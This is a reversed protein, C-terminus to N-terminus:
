NWHSNRLCDVVATPHIHDLYISTTAISAHGLVKSVISVPVGEIELQHARSHRLGHPHVRKTIGAMKALRRLLLRVYGPMLPTGPKTTFLLSGSGDVTPRFKRIHYRVHEAAVPDIGVTRRKGGKARRVKVIGNDLDIDHVSLALAESVRLGCRYLVAILARNRSGSFYRKNCGDLLARVEQPTLVDIAYREGKHSSSESRM